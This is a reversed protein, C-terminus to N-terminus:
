KYHYPSPYKATGIAHMSGGGVRTGDWQGERWLKSDSNGQREREINGDRYGGVGEREVGRKEEGEREGEGGNGETLTVLMVLIVM